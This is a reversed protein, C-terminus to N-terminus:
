NFLMKKIKNIVRNPMSTVGLFKIDYERDPIFFKNDKIPFVMENRIVLDNNPGFTHTAESGFGINEILSKSPVCALGNNKHRAYGWQYDWTNINKEIVSMIEKQRVRGIDKGFLKEFNNEKVFDCIDAMEVDYSKWARKWSAWGWIGGLQSFFYDNKHENWTNQKNYGSILFIREDDRYKELLEECYKFFSQSPLCDDELIIGEDINEFFWSIAGSVAKRCGLNEDQFLTKLECDWNIQNVIERANNCLASEGPKEPRPGDAAIFLYKPKQKKIENFVLQTIQPRNFILFLIPTRFM